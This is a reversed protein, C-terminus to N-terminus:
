LPMSKFVALESEYAKHFFQFTRKASEIAIQEDRKNHVLSEALLRFETWIKGRELGKGEYFHFPVCRSIKNNSSLARLIFNGGLMSGEIVYLGGIIEAETKFSGAIAETNILLNDQLRDSSDSLRNLNLMNNLDKRLWESKPYFFQTIPHNPNKELFPSFANELSKHIRLNSFILRKYEERTLEGKIIKSAFAVKEVAKHLHNTESKLKQLIPM